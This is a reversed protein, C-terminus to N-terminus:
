HVAETGTIHNAISDPDKSVSFPMVGRRVLDTIAYELLFSVEDESLDGIFHAPGSATEHTFDVRM